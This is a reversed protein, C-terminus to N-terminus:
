QEDEPLIVGMEIREEKTTNESLFGAPDLLIWAGHLIGRAISKIKNPQYKVEAATMTKAITTM